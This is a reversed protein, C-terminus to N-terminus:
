VSTLFWGNLTELFDAHWDGLLVHLHSDDQLPFVATWHRALAGGRGLTDSRAFERGFVAGIRGSDRSHLSERM